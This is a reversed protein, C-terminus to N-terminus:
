KLWCVMMHVLIWNLIFLHRVQKWPSLGNMKQHIARIFFERSCITSDNIEQISSRIFQKVTIYDLAYREVKHSASNEVSDAPGPVARTTTWNYSAWADKNVSNKSEWNHGGRWELSHFQNTQCVRVGKDLTLEQNELSKNWIGTIIKETIM